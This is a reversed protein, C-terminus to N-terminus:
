KSKKLAARAEAASMGPNRRILEVVQKESEPSGPADSQPFEYLEISPVTASPTKKPYKAKIRAIHAARQKPTMEILAATEEEPDLEYLDNLKSVEGQLTLKAIQAKLKKNEEQLEFLEPKKKDDAMEDDESPEDTPEDDMPPEDGMPPEDMPPEDMPPEEGLMPEAMPPPAPPQLLGAQKLWAACKTFLAVEDPTFGQPLQQDPGAPPQGMENMPPMEYYTTPETSEYALVGMDLQPDRIMHAVGRITRDAHRYEVSRYPYGRLEEAKDPFCYQDAVIGPEGQPGIPALRYNRLFGVLKGQAPDHDALETRVHGITIRGVVGTAEELERSYRCIDELDEPTIERVQGKITRCHPKFVPVNRRVAWKTPDDFSALTALTADM